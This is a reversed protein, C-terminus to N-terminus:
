CSLVGVCALFCYFLWCGNDYAFVMMVGVKGMVFQSGYAGGYESSEGNWVTVCSGYHAEQM